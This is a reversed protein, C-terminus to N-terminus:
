RSRDKRPVTVTPAPLQAVVDGKANSLTLTPAAEANVALRMRVGSKADHLTLAPADESGLGLVARTRGEKGFLGLNPTGDPGTSIAARLRGNQDALNIGQVTWRGRLDGREDRIVIESAEILKPGTPLDISVQRTFSAAAVATAIGAIVLAAAAVGTALLARRELRAVRLGLDDPSDAISSTV